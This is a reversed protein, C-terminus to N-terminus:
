LSSRCCFYRVNTKAAIFVFPRGRLTGHVTELVRSAASNSADSFTYVPVPKEAGKLGVSSNLVTLYTAAMPDDYVSQDIAVEIDELLAYQMLRAARVPPPGTIDWRCAVSSCGTVGCFTSGLAMGIACGVQQNVLERCVSIGLLSTEPVSEYLNVAAVIHVGKDDDIIQV